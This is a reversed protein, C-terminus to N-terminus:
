TCLLYFTIHLQLTTYANSNSHLLLSLPIYKAIRQILTNPNYHQHKVQSLTLGYTNQTIPNSMLFPFSIYIFIIEITICFMILLFHVLTSFVCLFSARSIFAQYFSFEFLLYIFM